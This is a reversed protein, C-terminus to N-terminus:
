GDRRGEKPLTRLADRARDYKELQVQAAAKCQRIISESTRCAKNCGSPMTELVAIVTYFSNLRTHARAAELILDDLARRSM